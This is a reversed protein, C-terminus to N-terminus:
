KNRRNIFYQYRITRIFTSYQVQHCNNCNKQSITTFIIMDFTLAGFECLIGFKFYIEVTTEKVKWKMKCSHQFVFQVVVVQRCLPKMQLSVM